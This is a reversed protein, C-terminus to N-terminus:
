IQKIYHNVSLDRGIFGNNLLPNIISDTNSTTFMTTIKNEQCFRSIHNVLFELGGEKHKYDIYKDSAPWALWALKSDTLYLWFCYVPIGEKYCVFVNEPLVSRDIIPFNHEKLWQCFTEYFKDKKFQRAEFM